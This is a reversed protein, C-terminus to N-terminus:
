DTDGDEDVGADAFTSPDFKHLLYTVVVPAAGGAFAAAIAVWPSPACEEDCLGGPARSLRGMPKMRCESM